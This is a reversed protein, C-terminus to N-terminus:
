KPNSKARKINAARVAAQRRMTQQDMWLPTRGFCGCGGPSRTLVRKPSSTLVRKPPLTAIKPRVMEAGNPRGHEDCITDMTIETYGLDDLSVITDQISALNNACDIYDPTTWLFAPSTPDSVFCEHIFRIRFPCCTYGPCPHAPDFATPICIGSGPWCCVPGSCPNSPSCVRSSICNYDNGTLPTNCDNGVPPTENCPLHQQFAGIFKWGAINDGASQFDNYHNPEQSGDCVHGPESSPPGIKCQSYFAMSRLYQTVIGCGRDSRYCDPTTITYDECSNGPWNQDWAWICPHLFPEGWEGTIDDQEPFVSTLTVAVSSSGAVCHAIGDPAEPDFATYPGWRLVINATASTPYTVNACCAPCQGNCMACCGIKRHGVLTASV